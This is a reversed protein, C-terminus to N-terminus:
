REWLCAETAEEAFPLEIRRAWKVDVLHRVVATFDDFVTQKRETARAM